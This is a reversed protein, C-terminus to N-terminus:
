NRAQTIALNEDTESKNNKAAIMEWKKNLSNRVRTFEEMLSDPVADSSPLEIALSNVPHDNKYLSYHLHPGTSLGTNGVYAIVQGQEVTAGEYIGDAFDSLHMYATEYVSNHRIRVVNGSGGDYGAQTVVGDGVSLVPTGFPAAYDTGYHPRRVNLIPHFRNPNFASSIRQDFKFPAKLLAKEVSEGAATFYGEVEGESFYYAKHMEGRHLFEAALVKGIGYFEEDIYRKEYLANFADGERLSFFDVQWAFIDALKYGLLPSVGEGSVANYLSSSIEASAVVTESTLPQSAKYIQVSDAKWNFVVYSLPNPQWVLHSISAGSDAPAYTRYKQGPKFGRVDILPKAEHITTYIERASFGFRDLILYLSENPKVKYKTIRLSDIPIGFKDFTPPAIVEKKELSVKKVAVAKKQPECASFIFVVIIATLFSRQM